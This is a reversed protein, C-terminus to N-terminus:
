GIRSASACTLSGGSVQCARTGAFSRSRAGFTTCVSLPSMHDKSSPLLMRGTPRVAVAPRDYRWYLGAPMVYSSIRGPLKSM